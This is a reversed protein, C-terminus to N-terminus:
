TLCAFDEFEEVWGQTLAERLLAVSIVASEICGLVRLVRESVNVVGNHINVENSVYHAPPKLHHDNSVCQQAPYLTDCKLQNLDCESVPQGVEPLAPPIM